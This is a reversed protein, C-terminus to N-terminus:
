YGPCNMDPPPTGMTTVDWEACVQRNFEDVEEAFSVVFIGDNSMAEELEDEVNASASAASQASLFTRGALESGFAQGYGSEAAGPENPYFYVLLVDAATSKAWLDRTIAEIDEEATVDTTAAMNRVRLGHLMGQEDKTINHAPVDAPVEPKSPESAENGGEGTARGLDEKEGQEPPPISQGCGYLAVLVAVVMLVRVAV